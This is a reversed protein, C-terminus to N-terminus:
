VGVLGFLGLYERGEGPEPEAFGVSAPPPGSGFHSAGRPGQLKQLTYPKPNLTEPPSFLSGQVRFTGLGLSQVRGSARSAPDWAWLGLDQVM